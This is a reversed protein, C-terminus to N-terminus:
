DATLCSVNQLFMGARELMVNGIAPYTPVAVIVSLFIGYHLTVEVYQLQHFM